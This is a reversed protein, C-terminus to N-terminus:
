DKRQEDNMFIQGKRRGPETIRPVTTGQGKKGDKTFQDDMPSVTSAKGGHGPHIIHPGGSGDGDGGEM